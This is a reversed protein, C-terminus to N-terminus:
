SARRVRISCDAVKDEEFLLLSQIRLATLCANFAFALEKEWGSTACIRKKAVVVKRDQDLSLTVDSIGALRRILKESEALDPGLRFEARIRSFVTLEPMGPALETLQIVVPIGTDDPVIFEIM